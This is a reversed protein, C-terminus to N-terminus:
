TITVSNERSLTRASDAVCASSDKRKKAAEAGLTARLSDARTSVKEAAEGASTAKASPRLKGLTDKIISEAAFVFEDSVSAVLADTKRSKSPTKFNTSSPGEIPRSAAKGGTAPPALTAKRGSM